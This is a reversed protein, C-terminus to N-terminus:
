TQASCPSWTGGGRSAARSPPSKSFWQGVQPGREGPRQDVLVGPEVRAARVGGALEGLLVVRRGPHALGVGRGDRQPVVVDVARAHRPVRRVGTDRRHEPGRELAALRRLHELVAALHPVEHVDVVDGAGVDRRHPRDDVRGRSTRRRCRRRRAGPRSGPRRWAPPAPFRCRCRARPSRRSGARRRGACRRRAPARKPPARNVASTSGSSPSGANAVAGSRSQAREGPEVFARTHCCDVTM